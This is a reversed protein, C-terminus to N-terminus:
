GCISKRQIKSFALLKQQLYSQLRQYYHQVFCCYYYHQVFTGPYCNYNKVSILLIFSNVFAGKGTPKKKKQRKIEEPILINNWANHINSLFLLIHSFFKLPLTKKSLQCKTSSEPEYPARSYNLPVLFFHSRIWWQLFGWWSHLRFTWISKWAGYLLCTFSIGLLCIYSKEELNEEKFVSFIFDIEFFIALHKFLIASNM